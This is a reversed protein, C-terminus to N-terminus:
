GRVEATLARRVAEPILDGVRGTAVSVTSDAAGYYVLIEDEDDLISKDGKPVAGCTFVVNPVWCKGEAGVEYECEPELVPNPSRYLVKGPDALDVLLIGLRYSLAYDVGHYILLWGYRTKLPQAGAGIKVGDWMMGSRPGMVIRHGERSWPCKIAEAFSIWMSPAVRHYMAYRGAFKEPFLFADKNTVGPFALGMREWKEWRYALFDEVRIRAMAIQPVLGDYATYLIYVQGEMVTARPDECGKSEAPGAPVLVPEPLREAVNYGDDSVALGLRSVEDDGVARYLIYVRGNLRLAASNLVYKNEWWHGPVPELVPNNKYRELRGALPEGVVPSQELLLDKAEKHGLLIEALDQSEAGMSILEVIKEEVEAPSIGAAQCYALLFEHSFWDREVHLSLPAPVSKGGKFSYSAWTWASCPIFRGDPMTLALHYSDAVLRLNALFEQWEPPGSQAELKELMQRLRVVLLRQHGNEFINHASFPSRGWHGEISNCIKGGFERRERAFRQWIQSFREGEVFNKALVTLYRLKPFEGGTNKRLNSVVVRGALRDLASTEKMEVLSPFDEHAVVLVKLDTLAFHEPRAFDRLWEAIREGFDRAESWGALALVDLPDRGALLSTVDQCDWRTMLNVPPYHRLLWTAAEPQLTLVQGHPIHSAVAEAVARTGEVTCLDGPLLLDLGAETRRLFDRVAQAIEQSTVGRHVGLREYIFADFEAKYRRLLGEYIPAVSVPHGEPSLTEQPLVLPVGPVFEWYAVKPIFSEVAQSEERWRALFAPREKRFVEAQDEVMREAQLDLLSEVDDPNLRELYSRFSALEREFGAVRGQFLAVLANLLDGRALDHSFAYTLLFAYVTKSWLDPSFNFEGYGANALEALRRYVEEPLIRELLSEHFRNYGQRFRNVLAQYNIQMWAGVDSDAKYGFMSVLYVSGAKQRWWEQHLIIQDFLVKAVQRFIFEQKGPSSRHLKVGLSTEGIRAERVIAKTLLWVDIGYAGVDGHWSAQDGLFVPLMQNAIAIEGGLPERIRVNYIATILPYVLSNSAIAELYHRTFRPFVMDVQGNRVPELLLKVWEGTLGLTRGDKEATELDAEFIAVDAELERAIEMIARISWGKGNISPHHFTFALRTVKPNPGPLAEVVRLVEQGVPSGALVIVASQDPYYTALGEQVTEVVRTITDAENYFPIGVVIDAQGIRRAQELPAAMCERYARELERDVEEGSM